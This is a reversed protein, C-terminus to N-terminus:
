GYLDWLRDRVLAVIHSPLDEQTSSLRDHFDMLAEILEADRIPARDLVLIHASAQVHDATPHSSSPRSYSSVEDRAMARATAAHQAVLLAITLATARLIPFTQSNSTPTASASEEPQSHTLMM